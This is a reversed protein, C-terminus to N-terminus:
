FMLQPDIEVKEGKFDRSIAANMSANAVEVVTKIQEAQQVADKQEQRRKNVVAMAAAQRRTIVDSALVDLQKNTVQNQMALQSLSNTITHVNYAENMLSQSQARLLLEMGQRTSTITASKLMLKNSEITMDLMKEGTSAALEKASSVAATADAQHQIQKATDLQAQALAAGAVTKEATAEQNLGDKGEIKLLEEYRSSSGAILGNTFDKGATAVKQKLQQIQNQFRGFENIMGKADGLIGLIGSIAGASESNLMSGTVKDGLMEGFENVNVQNFLNDKLKILEKIQGQWKQIKQIWELLDMLDMNSASMTPNVAYAAYAPQATSIALTATVLVLPAKLKKTLNPINRM